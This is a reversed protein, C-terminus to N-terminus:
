LLEDHRQLLLVEINSWALKVAARIRVLENYIVVFYGLVAIALFGMMAIRDDRSEM